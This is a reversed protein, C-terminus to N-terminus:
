YSMFWGAKLLQEIVQLPIYVSLCVSLNAPLCVSLGFNSQKHQLLAEKWYPIGSVFWVDAKEGERYYCTGEPLLSTLCLM